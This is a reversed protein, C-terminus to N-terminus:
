ARAAEAASRLIVLQGGADFLIRRGPELELARILPADAAQRLVILRYGRATRRWDDRAGFVGTIARIQDSTLLEYRVDNSVRGALAPDRWLLWDTFHGDALVRISPDAVTARQVSGLLAPQQASDALGDAPRALTALVSILVAFLALLALLANIQGRRRAAIAPHGDPRPRDAPAATPGYGLSVPVVFLGLLGLFVANRVVSVTAVALALLAIKEWSTTRSRRLAFTVLALGLALFTAIATSTVSTVPRWETIAQRLASNLLTSRYYGIIAIGYPTALLALVTGVILALPRRWMRPSRWARRREWGLTLARLVVLAAAMTVSGHLNAWLALLPVCWLVRRSPRRSDSSLLWVLVVFLPFALEQTRVERSPTILALCVPLLLLVSRAPAGLRRARTVAAAVSGVILAVNAVALLGFGGLRVLGDDILQALWQQDVWRHGASMVTLTERTPIGHAWVLRGTVVALWSDVSVARAAGALLIAGLMAVAVGVLLDTGWGACIALPDRGRADLTPRPYALSSVCGRDATGPAAV